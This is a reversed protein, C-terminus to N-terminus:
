QHSVHALKWADEGSLGGTLKRLGEGPVEFILAITAKDKSKDSDGTYEPDVTFIANGRPLLCACKIKQM